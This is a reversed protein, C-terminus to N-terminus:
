KNMRENMSYGGLTWAQLRARFSSFINSTNRLITLKPATLIGAVRVTTLVNTSDPKAMLNFQGRVRKMTITALSLTSPYVAQQFATM